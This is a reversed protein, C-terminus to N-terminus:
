DLPHLRYLRWTRGYMPYQGVVDARSLFARYFDALRAADFHGHAELTETELLWVAADRATRSIEARFTEADGQFAVTSVRLTRGLVYRAYPDLDPVNSLVLDRDSVGVRELEGLTALVPNPNRAAPWASGVLNGVGLLAVAIAVSRLSALRALRPATLLTAPPLLLLWFEFNGAEWWIAFAGLIPHLVFIVALYIPVWPLDFGAQLGDM